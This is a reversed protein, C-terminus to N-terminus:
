KSVRLKFQASLEAILRPLWDRVAGPAGRRLDRFRQVCARRALAQTRQRLTYGGLDPECWDAGAKGPMLRPDYDRHVWWRAPGGEPPPLLFALGQARLTSNCLRSLHGPDKGLLLAADALAVLRSWDPTAKTTLIPLPSASM